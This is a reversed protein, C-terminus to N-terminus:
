FPGQFVQARKEKWCTVTASGFIRTGSRGWYQNTIAMNM